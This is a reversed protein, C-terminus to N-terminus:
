PTGVKPPWSNVINDWRDIRTTFEGVDKLESVSNNEFFNKGNAKNLDNIVDRLNMMPLIIDRALKTRYADFPIPLVTKDLVVLPLATAAADSAVLGTVLSNAETIIKDAYDIYRIVNEVMEIHGPDLSKLDEEVAKEGKVYEGLIRVNGLFPCLGESFRLMDTVYGIVRVFLGGKTVIFTQGNYESHTHDDLQGPNTAVSKKTATNYLRDLLGLLNGTLSSQLNANSLVTGSFIFKGWKEGALLNNTDDLAYDALQKMLKNFVFTYYDAAYSKLFEEVLELKKVSCGALPDCEEELNKRLTILNDTYLKLSTFIKKYNDGSLLPYKNYETDLQDTSLVPKLQSFTEDFIGRIAPVWEDGVNEQLAAMPGKLSEPPTMAFEKLTAEAKILGETYEEVEKKTLRQGAAVGASRAEKILREVDAKYATDNEINEPNKLAEMLLLKLQKRAKELKNRARAKPNSAHMSGTMIGLFVGLGVLVSLINIKM